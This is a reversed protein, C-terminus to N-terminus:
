LLFNKDITQMNYTTSLNPLIDPYSKNFGLAITLTM